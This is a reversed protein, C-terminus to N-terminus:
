RVAKFPILLTLLTRQAALFLLQGNLTALSQVLYGSPFHNGRFMMWHYNHFFRSRGGNLVSAPILAVRAFRREAGGQRLPVPILLVLTGRLVVTSGIAIRSM